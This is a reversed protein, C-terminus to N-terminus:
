DLLADLLVKRNETLWARRRLILDGVGEEWMRAWGGGLLEASAKMRARGNDCRAVGLGPLARRDAEDLGYADALLRLRAPRDAAPWGPFVDEPACLPVWHMATNYADLLRTGPGALDFDILGAARGGRVVVNQPTVDLHCVLEPEPDPVPVAVPVQDRRWVGGDPAAFGTEALFGESADHLRRLLAGVSALLADDAAWPEPPSGAVAGDLFTLVDRGRDDRGLFRPAGDFGARELHDLYAAVAPSQPQSPRRVTGGVRVVGETVDGSPLETEPGDGGTYRRM